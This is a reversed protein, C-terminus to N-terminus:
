FKRKLFDHHCVDSFRGKKIWDISLFLAKLLLMRQLHCFRAEINLVWLIRSFLNDSFSCNIAEKIM